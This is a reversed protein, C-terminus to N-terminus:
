AKKRRKVRNGPLREILGSLQMQMLQAQIQGAPLGTADVLGDIEMPETGIAALV